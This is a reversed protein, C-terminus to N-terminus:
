SKSLLIRASDSLLNTFRLSDKFRKKNELSLNEIEQLNVKHLIKRNEPLNFYGSDKDLHMINRWFKVQSLTDCCLQYMQENYVFSMCVKTQSHEVNIVNEKLNLSPIAIASSDPPLCFLKVTFLISIFFHM